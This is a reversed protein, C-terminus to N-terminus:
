RACAGEKLGNALASQEHALLNQQYSGLSDRHSNNIKTTLSGIRCESCTKKTKKNALKGRDGCFQVSTGFLWRALEKSSTQDSIGLEGWGGITGHNYQGFPEM